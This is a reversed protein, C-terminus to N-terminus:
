IEADSDSLNVTINQNKQKNDMEYIGLHKGLLELAKEKSYTKAVNVKKYSDKGVRISKTEISSIAAKAKDNMESVPLLEGTIDCYLDDVNLFALKALENIVDDATVKVRESRKETLESIYQQIDVRTLLRSAQSRATKESFGAKIAAETGNFNIIYNECFLKYQDSLM